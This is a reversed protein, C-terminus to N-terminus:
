RVSQERKAKWERLSDMIDDRLWLYFGNGVGANVPPFPIRGSEMAKFVAPRTVGVYDMVGQVSIYKKDFEQQATLQINETAM